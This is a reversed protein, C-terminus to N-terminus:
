GCVLTYQIEAPENNQGFLDFETDCIPELLDCFLSVWDRKISARTAPTLGNAMRILMPAIPRLGIDWIHAHTKTIFPKANEVSFGADVFRKEWTERNAVTPWCELRGRGIIDMFRDGLVSRHNELTYDRLSALKVQLVVRGSSRVTRKLENLLGDINEIWYVANCYITEFSGDPFPLTENADHQVLRDFIALSEAKGLLNAKADCGVNFTRHPSRMIAPATKAPACDFMDANTRNVDDLRDVASFVDFEETFEGGMHLFSFVGDGCCLDLSPSDISIQSLSESRLAMWFANEPRLWYAQLFRKLLDQRSVIAQRAPAHSLKTTM